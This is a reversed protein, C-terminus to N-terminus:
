EIQQREEDDQKKRLIDTHLDYLAERAPKGRHFTRDPDYSDYLSIKRESLKSENLKKNQERIATDRLKSAGKKYLREHTPEFRRDEMNEVIALSIDDLKPELTIEEVGENQKM